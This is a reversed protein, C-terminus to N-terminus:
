IQARQQREAGPGSREAYAGGASSSARARPKSVSVNVLALRGIIRQLCRMAVSADVYRSAMRVRKGRDSDRGSEHDPAPGPLKPWCTRPGSRPVGAVAAGGRDQHRKDPSAACSSRLPKAQRTRARAMETSPILRSPRGVRSIPRLPSWGNMFAANRAMRGRDADARSREQSSPRPQDVPSSARM